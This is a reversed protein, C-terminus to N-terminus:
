PQTEEPEAEETEESESESEPEFAKMAAVFLGTFLGSSLLTHRFFTWTPPYGPLGSTLAQVWGLFTKAYQPNQLWAATNTILYFFIAGLLGGGLLAVWSSKSNFLQGIAIIVAFGLYNVLMYGSVAATDYYFLNLFVDTVLLVSLPLWWAVHRPLYVGACFALAYAASFNLPLAGPLRTLAFGLILAIPLWLNRKENV